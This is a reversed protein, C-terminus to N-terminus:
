LCTQSLLTWTPTEQGQGLGFRRPPWFPWVTIVYALREPIEELLVGTLVKGDGACGSPLQCAERCLTLQYSRTEGTLRGQGSEREEGVMEDICAEGVEGHGDM